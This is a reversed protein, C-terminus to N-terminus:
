CIKPEWRLADARARQYAVVAAQIGASARAPQHTPDKIWGVFLTRMHDKLGEEIASLLGARIIIREEPTVCEIKLPEATSQEYFESGVIISIVLVWVAIAIWNPM